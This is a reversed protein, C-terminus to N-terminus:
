PLLIGAKRLAAKARTSHIVVVSGHGGLEGSRRYRNLLSSVTSRNVGVMHALEAQTLEAPLTYDDDARLGCREAVDVLVALLRVSRDVEMQVILRGVARRQLDTAHRVFNLCLPPLTGLLRAFMEATMTWVAAASLTEATVTRRDDQSTFPEGLMSGSAMVDLVREVGDPSVVSVKIIGRDVFYVRDAEDGM